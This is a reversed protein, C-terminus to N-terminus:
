GEYYGQSPYAIKGNRLQDSQWNGELIVGDNRILKGYGHRKNQM